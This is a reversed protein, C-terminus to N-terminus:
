IRNVSRIRNKLRIKKIEHDAQPLKKLYQVINTKYNIKTWYTIGYIKFNVKAQKDFREKM